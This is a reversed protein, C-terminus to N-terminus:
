LNAARNRSCSSLAGRARSKKSLLLGSWIFMAPIVDRTNAEFADLMPAPGCCYFHSNAPAHDILAGLDLFNGAEVDIHIRAESLKELKELFAVDRRDRCAYHLEFSRGLEKLREAMCWIPTIGIGGAILVTHEATEVLPFNNRPVGVTLVSGVKVSDHLCASGGRGAADRKVGITYRNDTGSHVLSYPRIMGNPLYIDIHAGPGAAPIAEGAIPEFEYLNTEHALYQIGTLRMTITKTPVAEM